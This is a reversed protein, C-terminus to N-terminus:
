SCSLHRHLDLQDSESIAAADWVKIRLGMGLRIGRPLQELNLTLGGIALAAVLGQGFAISKTQSISITGSAAVRWLLMPGATKEVDLVIQRTGVTAAATYEVYVAAVEVTSLGALKPSIDADFDITKSAGAGTSSIILVGNRLAEGSTTEPNQHAIPM